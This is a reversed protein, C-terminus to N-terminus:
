WYICAILFVSYLLFEVSLCCNGDMESNRINKDMTFPSKGQFSINIKSLRGWLLLGELREKFISESIIETKNRRGAKRGRGFQLFFHKNKRGQAQHPYIASAFFKKRYIIGHLLCGSTKRVSFEMWCLLVSQSALVGSSLWSLFTPSRYCNQKFKNIGLIWLSLSIWCDLSAKYRM